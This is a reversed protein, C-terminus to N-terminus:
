PIYPMYAGCSGSISNQYQYASNIVSYNLGKFNGKFTLSLMESLNLNYQVTLVPGSYFKTPVAESYTINYVGSGVKIINWTLDTPTQQSVNQFTSPGTPYVGMQLHYTSNYAGPTCSVDKNYLKKYSAMLGGINTNNLNSMIQQTPTGGSITTTVPSISTVVVSTTIKPTSVTVNVTPLKQLLSPPNIVSVISSVRIGLNRTLPSLSLTAKSQSSSSLVVHVDAIQQANGSMNAGGGPYLAVVAIPNALAPLATLYFTASLNSSRILSLAYTTSNGPFSFFVTGNIPVTFSQTNSLQYVTNGLLFQSVLYLVIVVVVALLVIQLKTLTSPPRKRVVHKSFHEKRVTAM